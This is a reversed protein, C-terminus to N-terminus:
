SINVKLPNGPKDGRYCIHFHGSHRGFALRKEKPTEAQRKPVIGDIELNQIPKKAKQWAKAPLHRLSMMYLLGTCKTQHFEMSQLSFSTNPHHFEDMEFNQTMEAENKM